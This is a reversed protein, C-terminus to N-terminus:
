MHMVPAYANCVYANCAHWQLVGAPTRHVVVFLAPAARTTRSPARLAPAGALGSNLHLWVDLVLAALYGLRSQFPMFAETSLLFTTVIFAWCTLLVGLTTACFM